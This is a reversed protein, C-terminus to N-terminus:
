IVEGFGIFFTSVGTSLDFTPIPIGGLVSGELEIINFPALGPRTRIAEAHGLPDRHLNQIRRFAGIPTHLDDSDLIVGMKGLNYVALVKSKEAM